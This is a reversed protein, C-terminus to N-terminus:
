QLRGGPRAHGHTRPRTYHDIFPAALNMLLVGFAIADPYNGWARIVYVLLGVGAGFLLRGRLSTASSVPDTVIFFAGLMTGGGLLHFLPSGPSQSSGGDWFLLACLALTGLMALPAHWSFIRQQLLWLGGLLFALNIWEWGRGALTGALGSTAQWEAVTQGSRHKFDDLPTAGSLGNITAGGNGSPGLLSLELGQLAREPVQPLPEATPWSTMDVPFSILLMVYGVMAPNFPNAGLGGYLQKGFVIGLAAGILPLWFPVMPPLTLGLLLGTLAASGDALTARLPRGRARLMGAEAALAGTVALAVNLLVAPGLWWAMVLMGPLAAMMVQRMIQNTSRRRHVHPSSPPPMM